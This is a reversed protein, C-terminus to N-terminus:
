NKPLRAQYGLNRRRLERAYRLRASAKIDLSAAFTAQAAAFITGTLFVVAGAFGPHQAFIVIVAIFWILAISYTVFALRRLRYASTLSTAEPVQLRM